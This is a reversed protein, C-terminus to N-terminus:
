FERAEREFVVYTKDALIKGVIMVPILKSSKSVVQTPFSVYKLAEYQCWSSMINSFSAFAYKHFPAFRTAKTIFTNIFIAVCFAITRNSFVLFQSSQFKEGDYDITILREQLVGWTLYSVQLGVACTALVAANQAFSTNTSEEPPHQIQKSRTAKPLSLIEIAELVFWRVFKSYADNGEVRDPNNKYHSDNTHTDTNKQKM